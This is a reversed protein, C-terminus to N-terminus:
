AAVFPRSSRKRSGFGFAAALAIGFLLLSQPEDVAVSSTTINIDSVLWHGYPNTNSTLNPGDYFQVTGGGLTPGFKSSTLVTEDAGGAGDDFVADLISIYADPGFVQSFTNDFFSMLNAVGQIDSSTATGSSQSTVANIGVSSFLLTEVELRTAYRFGEFYGGAGLQAKVDTFSNLHVSSCGPGGGCGSGGQVIPLWPDLWQLGTDTDVTISGTGYSSDQSMLLAYSNTSFAACALLAPLMLRRGWGKAGAVLGSSSEQIQEVKVTELQNRMEM